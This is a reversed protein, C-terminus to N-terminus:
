GGHRSRAAAPGAALYSGVGDRYSDFHYRIRDWAGPAGVVIFTALQVYFWYDLLAAYAEFTGPHLRHVAHGIIQMGLCLWLIFGWLRNYALLLIAILAITDSVTWIDPSSVRLGLSLLVRHPSLPAWASVYVLWDLAIVTWALQLQRRQEVARPRLTFLGALTLLAANCLLQFLTV